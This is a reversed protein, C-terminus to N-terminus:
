GLPARAEGATGPRLDDAHPHCRLLSGPKLGSSCSAPGRDLAQQQSGRQTVLDLACVLNDLTSLEGSLQHFHLAPDTASGVVHVLDRALGVGDM